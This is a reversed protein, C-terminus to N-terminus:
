KVCVFVCRVLLQGYPGARMAEIRAASMGEGLESALARALELAVARPLGEAPASKSTLSDPRNFPETGPPASQQRPGPPTTPSEQPPLLALADSAASKECTHPCLSPFGRASLFFLPLPIFAHYIGRARPKKAYDHRSVSRSRLHDCRRNRAM